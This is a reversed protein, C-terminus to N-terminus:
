LHYNIQFYIVTPYSDPCWFRYTVTVTIFRWYRGAWTTGDWRQCKIYFEVNDRYGSGNCAARASDPNTSRDYSPSCYAAEAVAPAVDAVVEVTPVAASVGFILALCLVAARIRNQM